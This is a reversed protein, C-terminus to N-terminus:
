KDNLRMKFDNFFCIFQYFEKADRLFRLNAQKRTKKQPPPPMLHIQLSLHIFHRGQSFYCLLNTYKLQAKHSREGPAKQAKFDNFRM